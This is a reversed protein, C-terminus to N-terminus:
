LGRTKIEWLSLAGRSGRSGLDKQGANVREQPYPGDVLSLTVQYDLCVRQVQCGVLASFDRNPM